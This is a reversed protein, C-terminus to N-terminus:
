PNEVTVCYAGSSFSPLAIRIETATRSTITFNTVPGDPGTVTVDADVAFGTGTVILTLTACIISLGTVLAQTGCAFKTLWFGSDPSFEMGYAANIADVFAQTIEISVLVAGDSVRLKKLFFYDADGYFGVWFADSGTLDAQLFIADHSPTAVLTYTQLVTGDPAYHKVVTSTTDKGSWGALITGDRLVLLSYGTHPANRVAETTLTALAINNVLDWRYITRESAGPSAGEHSTIQYYAIDNAAGVAVAAIVNNPAGSILPPLWLGTQAGAMNVGMLLFNTRPPAPFGGPYLGAVYWRDTYNGRPAKTGTNPQLGSWAAIETVPCYSYNKDFGTAFAGNDLADSDEGAVPDQVAILSGDVSSLYVIPEVTSPGNFPFALSGAPVHAM